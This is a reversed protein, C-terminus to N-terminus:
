SCLNVCFFVLAGFYNFLLINFSSLTLVNGDIFSAIKQNM